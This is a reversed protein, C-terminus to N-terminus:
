KCISSIDLELQGFAIMANFLRIRKFNMLDMVRIDSEVIQGDAILAARSTGMLIPERPTHWKYGDFLAINAAWTDTLLGDRVMLIDDCAGRQAYLENLVTRDAMKYQVCPLTTPVLKLSRVERMTYPVYEVLRVQEDYEVRCKFLGVKPFDSQCLVEELSFGKLTPYFEEFAANVRQQHLELRSFEGDHLRISEVFQSM